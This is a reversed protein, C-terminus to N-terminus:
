GDAVKTRRSGLLTLFCGVGRCAQTTGSVAQSLGDRRLQFLLLRPVALAGFGLTGIGSQRFLWQRKLGAYVQSTIVWRRYQDRNAASPYHNVFLSPDHALKYGRHLAQLTIDSEECGYKLMEDFRACRFLERPFIAANIVVCNADQKEADRMHAWFGSRQPEVRAPPADPGGDYRWEFGCLVSRDGRIAAVKAARDYFDAPVTVDDDTFHLWSGVSAAVCVNRNASLGRRPGVQYRVAGFQRCLDESRRDSAPSDDSVLIETPMPACAQLARLARDLERPRSM